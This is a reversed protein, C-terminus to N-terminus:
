PRGGKRKEGGKKMENIDSTSRGTFASVLGRANYEGRTFSDVIGAIFYALKLPLFIFRVKKNLVKSFLDRLEM